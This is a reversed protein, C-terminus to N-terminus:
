EVQGVESRAWVHFRERSDTVSRRCCDGILQNIISILQKCNRAAETGDFAAEKDQTNHKRQADTRRRRNVEKNRRFVTKFSSSSISPFHISQLLFYQTDFFCNFNRIYTFTENSFFSRNFKDQFWFGNRSNQVNRSM